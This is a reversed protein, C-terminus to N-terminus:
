TFVNFIVKWCVSGNNQSFRISNSCARNEASVEKFIFPASLNQMFDRHDKDRSISSERHSLLYRCIGDCDHHTRFGPPNREYPWKEGKMAVKAGKGTFIVDFLMFVIPKTSLIGM